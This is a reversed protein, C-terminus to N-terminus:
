RLLTINGKQEFEKGTTSSVASIDYIYVGLPQPTGKYTGDWGDDINKAEFVMIGWRDYIRFHRLSAIGRKLVKFTGNPGNGPAFANPMALQANPNIFVDISDKTKCGKETVGTIFYRTSVEPSAVPEMINANSLGGSPKWHFSSCNSEPDMQHTEGPFLTVSDALTIVAAPYVTVKVTATDTCGYQNTVVVSYSMDTEPHVITIPTITDAVYM